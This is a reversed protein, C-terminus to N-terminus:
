LGSEDWRVDLLEKAQRNVYVDVTVPTRVGDQWTGTGECTLMLTEDKGQPLRLGARHDATLSTQTITALAIGSTGANKKSMGVADVAVKECTLSDYAHLQSKASQNLAVPIAIAALIGILVLGGVVCGVVIAIKAGSSRGPAPVPQWPQQGTWPAPGGPGVGQGYAAGGFGQQPYGLQPYGLQAPQAEPYTPQALPAPQGPATSETWAAGNFWRLADPQAPDPYWGAAPSM